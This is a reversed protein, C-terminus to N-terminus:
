INPIRRGGSSARRALHICRKALKRSSNRFVVDTSAAVAAIPHAASM